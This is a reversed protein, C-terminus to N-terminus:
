SNNLSLEHRTSLFLICAGEQVISNRFVYCFEHTAKKLKSLKLDVHSVSSFDYLSTKRANDITIGYLSRVKLYLPM